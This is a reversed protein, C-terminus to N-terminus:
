PSTGMRKKKAMMKIINTTGKQGSENAIHTFAYQKYRLLTALSEAEIDEIPIEQNITPMKEFIFYYKGWGAKSVYGQSKM